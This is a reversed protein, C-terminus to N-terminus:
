AAVARMAVRLSELTPVSVAVLGGIARRALQGNTEARVCVARATAPLRVEAARLAPLALASGAVLVVVSAASAASAVTAAIEVPEPASTGADVGSLRDLLHTPTIGSQARRHRETGTLLTVAKGDRLASVGISGAISIALEFEADDAYDTARTSLAIVLHSRRTQEFQRIMLKSTRATSKWHVHRLDDGPVYERLAHFSVDDDALDRTPLGELDRLFGTTEADLRVVRPHIYLDTPETWVATRRVLGLPDTRVSTVPGLTLVARRQTPITFIEDHEADGILRPIRFEARARGVPLEVTTPASGRPSASRVVLRGVAREGVTVRPSALEVRADYDVRGLVFPVALVVVLVLVAAIALTEMWDFALTLIGAGAACALVAWGIGSVVALRRGLWRTPPALRATAAATLGTARGGAATAVRRIAGRLAGGAGAAPGGSGAAPVRGSRASRGGAASGGGSGTSPASGAAGARAADRGGRGFGLTRRAGSRENARARAARRPETGSAATASSALASSAPTSSALAASDAEPASGATPSATQTM